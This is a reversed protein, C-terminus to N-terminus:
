MTAGRGINPVLVRQPVALERFSLREQTVEPRLCLSPAQMYIDPSAAHWALVKM